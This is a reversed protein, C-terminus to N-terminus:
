LAPERKAASSEQKAGSASDKPTDRETLAGQNPPPVPTAPYEKPNVKVGNALALQGEVVVTEGPKVGQSVVVLDRYRVGQTVIRQEVTNDSKVAFLYTGKGGMQVTQSPVVSAEKLVQITLTVNVYQGPWLYRDKNPITARLLATGSQTSVSNDLFSLAGSKVIDPRAPTVVDVTLSHGQGMNERLQALDNESITFDVYVPDQLQINVLTAGGTAVYNGPDVLRRGTRGDNPSRVYCYELNLRALDVSAQDKAVAGQINEVQAHDTDIQQASVFRGAGTQEDRQLNRQDLALQAQDSKLQGQSQELDAQFPRPDIVFLLDGRKVEQGDVFHVEMIRGSVQPQVNVSEPSSLRGFEHLQVPVNMVQVKTVLVNKAAPPSNVIRKEGCGAIALSLFFILPGYRSM